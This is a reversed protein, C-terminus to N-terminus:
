EELCFLIGIALFDIETQKGIEFKNAKFKCISINHISHTSKRKEDEWHVDAMIIYSFKYFTYEKQIRLFSRIFFFITRDMLHPKPRDFRIYILEM